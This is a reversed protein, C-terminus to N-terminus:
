GVERRIDMQIKRNLQGAAMQERYETIQVINGTFCEIFPVPSGLVSMLYVVPHEGLVHGHKYVAQLATWLVHHCPTIPFSGLAENLEIM